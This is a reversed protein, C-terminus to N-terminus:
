FFGGRTDVNEIDSRAPNKRWRLYQKQTISDPYYVNNARKREDMFKSRNSRSANVEQAKEYLEYSSTRGKIENPFINRGVYSNLIRKNERYTLTRDLVHLLDVKDKNIGKKELSKGLNLIQLGFPYNKSKKIM